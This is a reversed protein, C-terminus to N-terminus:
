DEDDRDGLRSRKRSGRHFRAIRERHGAKPLHNFRWGRFGGAFGEPMVTFLALPQNFDESALLEGRLTM